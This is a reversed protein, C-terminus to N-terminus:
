RRWISGPCMALHRIHATVGLAAIAQHIPDLAGADSRGAFVLALDLGADRCRRLVQPLLEVNKHGAFTGAYMLYPRATLEYTGLVEEIREQGAPRYVETDYGETVVVDPRPERPCVRGACRRAHARVGRHDHSQGWACAALDAATSSPSPPSSRPPIGSCRSTMCWWWRLCWPWWRLLRPRAFLVDIGAGRAGCLCACGLTWWANWLTRGRGRGLCRSRGLEQIHAGQRISAPVTQPTHTFVTVKRAGGRVLRQCVELVYTGLGAPREDFIPVYIGLHM